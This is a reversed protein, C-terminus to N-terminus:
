LTPEREIQRIAEPGSLGSRLLERFRKTEASPPPPGPRAFRRPPALALEAATKRAAAARARAADVYAKAKLGTPDCVAACCCGRLHKVGHVVTARHSV